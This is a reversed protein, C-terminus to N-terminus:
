QRLICRSRSCSISAHAIRRRTTWSRQVCEWRVDWAFGEVESDRPRWINLVDAGYLALDRCMAGGAIVHGMGFARIGSLPLNGSVKLPVPDSEGIREVKILPMDSLVQAYQPERRFEENTRVM